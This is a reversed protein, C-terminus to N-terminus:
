HFKFWEKDQLKKFFSPLLSFEKLSFFFLLEVNLNRLDAVVQFSQRGTTTVHLKLLPKDFYYTFNNNGYSSSRILHMFMLHFQKPIERIELIKSMRCFHFRM